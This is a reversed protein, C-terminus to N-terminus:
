NNHQRTTNSIELNLSLVACHKGDTWTKRRNMRATSINKTETFFLKAQIVKSLKSNPNGWITGLSNKSLLFSVSRNQCCVFITSWFLMRHIVSLVSLLWRNSQVCPIDIFYTIPWILYPYISGRFAYLIFILISYVYVCMCICVCLYLKSIHQIHSLHIKFKFKSKLTIQGMIM